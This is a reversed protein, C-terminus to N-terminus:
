TKSPVSRRPDVEANLREIANTSSITGLRRQPPLAVPHRSSRRVVKPGQTRPGGHDSVQRVVLDPPVVDRPSTFHSFAL